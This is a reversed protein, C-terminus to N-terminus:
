FCYTHHLNTCVTTFVKKGTEIWERTRDATMVAKSIQVDQPGQDDESESTEDEQETDDAAGEGEDSSADSRSEDDDSDALM